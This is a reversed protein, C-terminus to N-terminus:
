RWMFLGLSFDFLPVSYLVMISVFNKPYFRDASVIKAADIM